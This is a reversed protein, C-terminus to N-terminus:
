QRGAHPSSTVSEPADGRNLCFRWVVVDGELSEGDRRFGSKELVRVSGNREPMTHARVCGVAPDAWAEGLLVGVAATAVGRGEWGPAVSYGIEVAGNEDPAGKFGGWGVLTRPAQVVFFRPGWSASAPDAAIADRFHRVADPFVAWGAAVECDLARALAAGDGVAADLLALDCPV